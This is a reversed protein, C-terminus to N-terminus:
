SVDPLVFAVILVCLYFLLLSQCGHCVRQQRTTMQEGNSKQHQRQKQM